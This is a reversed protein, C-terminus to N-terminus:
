PPTHLPSGVWGGMLASLGDFRPGEGATASARQGAHAQPKDQHQQPPLHFPHRAKTWGALWGSASLRMHVGKVVALDVGGEVLLVTGCRTRSGVGRTFLGSVGQRPQRRISWYSASRVASPKCPMNARVVACSSIVSATQHVVCRSCCRGSHAPCTSRYLQCAKIRAATPHPRPCPQPPRHGAPRATCSLTRPAAAPVQLLRTVGGAVGGGGGAAAALRGSPCAIGHCRHRLLVLLQQLLQSAAWTPPRQAPSDAAAPQPPHAAWSGIRPAATCVRAPCGAAIMHLRGPQGVATLGTVNL